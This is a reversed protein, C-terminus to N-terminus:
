ASCSTCVERGNQYHGAGQSHAGKKVEVNKCLPKLHKVRENSVASVAFGARQWNGVVEPFSARGAAGKVSGAAITFIKV